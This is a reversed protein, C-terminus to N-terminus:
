GTWRSWVPVVRDPLAIVKGLEVHSENPGHFDSGRSALFGYDRAVQAFRDIQVKTHSGSVVEIAEGGADRFESMLAHLALDNLKYRGPHAVVAVGQAQRIWQVADSLRAWRHEVYGPKGESLYNMFVQGVDECVKTEVLFRAFHTRSILAPNGVYKLAGDYAGEIGVRALQEAMERARAERGGRTRALGDILEPQDYQINLGVIHITQGGWTVSVEVGPVFRLGLSEATARAQPLGGVEDHDTLAWMQVGQEAARRAVAEPAMTGDSVFSHCHLDANIRWPDDYRATSM